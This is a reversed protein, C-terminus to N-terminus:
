ESEGETVTIEIEKISQVGAQFGDAYGDKYSYRVLLYTAIISLVPHAILLDSAQTVYDAFNTWMTRLLTTM